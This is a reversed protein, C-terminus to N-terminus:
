LQRRIVFTPKEMVKIHMRALYEGIIGLSFLQAGAFITILSATFTFGAVQGGYIAYRALVYAFVGIGLISSLLGLYTALKLPLTSYGTITDLAFKFLKSFNYNSKGKSRASHDVFISDINETSWFLLADISVNGRPNVPFSDAIQRRFVRFSSIHQAHPVRLIAMLFFRISYSSFKRFFNQKSIKPSGYVVDLDEALIYDVLRPIEHPPNQLDDDLTVILQNKALHIGALVAGHQGFNKSLEFCHVNPKKQSLKKLITWYPGKSHDDIILIEYDYFNSLSVEIKEVLTEIVDSKYFPVIISLSSM